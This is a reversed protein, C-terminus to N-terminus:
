GDFDLPDVDKAAQRKTGGRTSKAKNQNMKFKPSPKRVIKITKIAHPGEKSSKRKKNTSANEKENSGRIRRTRRRSVSKPTQRGKTENNERSLSDSSVPTPSKATTASLMPLQTPPTTGRTKTEDSSTLDDSPSASKVIPSLPGFEMPRDPSFHVSKNPTPASILSDDLDQRSRKSRSPSTSTTATSEASKRKSRTMRPSNRSGSMSDHSSLLTENARQLAPSQSAEAVTSKDDINDRTDDESEKSLSSEGSKKGNSEDITRVVDSNPGAIHSLVKKKPRGQSFLNGPILIKGPFATLNEDRKVLSLLVERSIQCVKLLRRQSDEDEAARTAELKPSKTSIIETMRLLFSVNNGDATSTLIEFLNKIRKSLTNTAKEDLLASDEGVYDEDTRNKKEGQALPTEPRFALLHFAYPVSYEPMVTVKTFTQYRKEAEDGNARAQAAGAEYVRRLYAVCGHANGLVNHIHKGVNAAGGNASSHNANHEGDTCLVTYALFRLRPAMAQQGPVSAYKGNATLMEGLEEMVASRVVREDDLFVGALLHWRQTTLYKQDLGLRTDCLRLLHIAAYQRLAARDQRLGFFKKDRSSPPMGEDRVICSLGHFFTETSNEIDPSPGQKMRKNTLVGSRIYTSILEIAACLTRCSISLNDDDVLSKHHNTPSLHDEIQSYKSTKSRRRSPTKVDTGDEDESCGSDDDSSHVQREAAKRGMLVENLAFKLANQGRKETEFVKPAHEALESLAVLVSTLRTSSSASAMSLQSPASLTRLLPLFASNQEQTLVPGDKPKLLAVMTATAHRAQEPTGDRCLNVLQTHIDEECKGPNEGITRHPSAAALIASLSTMMGCDTIMQKKASSSPINSSDRFLETLTVFDEESSCLQPYRMSAM